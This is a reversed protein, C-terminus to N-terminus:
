MSAPYPIDAVKFVQLSSRRFDAQKGRDESWSKGMVTLPYLQKSWQRALISWIFRNGAWERDTRKSFELRAVAQPCRHGGIRRTGHALDLPSKGVYNYVDVNAGANVLATLMEARGERAAHLLATWSGNDRAEINAGADLLTLSWQWKAM